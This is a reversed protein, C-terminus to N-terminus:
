VNKMDKKIKNQLFNRMRNLASMLAKYEARKAFYSIGDAFYESIIGVSDQKKEKKVSALGKEKILDPSKALLKKFASPTKEGISNLNAGWLWKYLGRYKIRGYNKKALYRTKDYYRVENKGRDKYGFVVFQNGKNLNLIFEKRYKYFKSKKMLSKVSYIKRWYLQEAITMSRSGTKPPPMVKAATTAFGSLGKGLSQPANDLVIKEARKIKYEVYADVNIPTAKIGTNM